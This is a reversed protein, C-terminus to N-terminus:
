KIKIRKFVVNGIDAKEVGQVGGKEIDEIPLTMNVYGKYMKGDTLEIIVDFGINYHIDSIKIEAKKLITGDNIYNIEKKEANQDVAIEGIDQVCSRFSITGGQNSITLNQLNTKKDGTYAINDEILLNDEYVYIIGDENNPRYFRVVGKKPESM